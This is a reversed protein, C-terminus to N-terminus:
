LSFHQNAAIELPREIEFGIRESESGHSPKSILQSLKITLIKLQFGTFVLSLTTWESFRLVIFYHKSSLFATTWEPSKVRRSLHKLAIKHWHWRFLAEIWSELQNLIKICYFPECRKSHCIIRGLTVQPHFCSFLYLFVCLFPAFFSKERKDWHIKTQEVFNRAINERSPIPRYFFLTQFDADANAYIEQEFM